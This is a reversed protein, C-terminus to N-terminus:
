IFVEAYLTEIKEWSIQKELILNAFQIYPAYRDCFDANGHMTEWDVISINGRDDPMLVLAIAGTKLSLETMRCVTNRYEDKGRLLTGLKSALRINEDQNSTFITGKWKNIMENIEVSYPVFLERATM